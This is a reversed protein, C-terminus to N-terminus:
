KLWTFHFRYYINKILKPSINSLTVNGNSTNITWNITVSDGTTHYESGLVNLSFNESPRYEEPITFLTSSEQAIDANAYLTGFLEVVTGSKRVKVISSYSDLSAHVLPITQTTTPHMEEELKEEFVDDTMSDCFGRAM